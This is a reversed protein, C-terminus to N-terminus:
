FSQAARFDANGLSSPNATEQILTRALSCLWLVIPCPPRSPEGWLRQPPLWPRGQTWLCLVAVTVSSLDLGVTNGMCPPALSPARQSCVCAAPGEPVNPDLRERWRLLNRRRPLGRLRSFWAPRWGAAEAPSRWPTVSLQTAQQGTSGQTECM